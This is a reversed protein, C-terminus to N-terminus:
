PLFHPYLYYARSDPRRRRLTKLFTQLMPSVALHSLDFQLIAGEKIIERLLSAEIGRELYLVVNTGAAKASKIVDLILSIEEAEKISRDSLHIWAGNGALEELSAELPGHHYYILWSRGKRCSYALSNLLNFDRKKDKNSLHLYVGKIGLNVIEQFSLSEPGEEEETQLPGHHFCAVFAGSRRCTENLIEIEFAQPRVEDSTFIDAGAEALWELQSITLKGSDILRFRGGRKKCTKAMDLLWTYDYEDDRVTLDKRAEALSFLEYAKDRFESAEIERVEDEKKRDIASM